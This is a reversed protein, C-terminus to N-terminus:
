GHMSSMMWQPCCQPTLSLVIKSAAFLTRTVMAHAFSSPWRHANDGRGKLSDEDHRIVVFQFAVSEGVHYDNNKRKVGLVM